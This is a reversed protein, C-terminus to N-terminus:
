SRFHPSTIIHPSSVRDQFAAIIRDSGDKTPKQGILLPFVSLVGSWHPHTQWDRLMNAIQEM